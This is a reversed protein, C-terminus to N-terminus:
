SSQSFVFGRYPDPPPDPTTEWWLSLSSACALGAKQTSLLNHMGRQTNLRGTEGTSIESCLSRQRQHTELFLKQPSDTCSGSMLRWHGREKVRIRLGCRTSSWGPVKKREWSCALQHAEKLFVTKATGEAAFRKGPLKPRMKFAVEGPGTALLAFQEQLPGM